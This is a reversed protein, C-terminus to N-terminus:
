LARSCEPKRRRPRPGPCRGLQRGPWSSSRYPMVLKPAPQRRARGPLRGAAATSPSSGARRGGLRAGGRGRRRRPGARPVPHPRRVPRELLVAGAAYPTGAGGAATALLNRAAAAGQEAANTWHEVRMEEGFLENPWRVVDGAAYVGPRVPPSRPTACSATACSSGAARWGTADGAGRRRRRGGRRGRPGSRREPQVGSSATADGEFAACASASACTSATPGTCTPSRRRRARAGLAACSRCRCPRSWRSRSGAAAHGHGGGRCRHLRCRDGRSAATRGRACGAPRALRRAHAARVRGPLQPSAPCAARRRAPPSSWCRRLAAVSGDALHVVQRAGPRPATAPM